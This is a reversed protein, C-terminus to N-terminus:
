KPGQEPALAACRVTVVAAAGGQAFTQNMQLCHELKVVDITQWAQKLNSGSTFFMTITMIVLTTASV